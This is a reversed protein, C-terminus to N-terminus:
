PRPPEDDADRRRKEDEILRREDEDEDFLVRHAAGELDDFQGSRLSWMFAALGLLGLGIAIPILYILVTM